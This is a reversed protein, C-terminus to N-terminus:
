RYTGRRNALYGEIWMFKEHDNPNNPYKYKISDPNNDRLWRLYADEAKNRLYEEHEIEEYMVRDQQWYFTNGNREAERLKRMMKELPTM